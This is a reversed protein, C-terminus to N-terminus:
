SFSRREERFWRGGGGDVADGEDAKEPDPRFRMSGKPGTVAEEPGERSGYSGRPGACRV